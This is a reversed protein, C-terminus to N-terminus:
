AVVRPDTIIYGAAIGVAANAAENVEDPGLDVGARRAVWFIGAAVFAAVIKRIPAYNTLTSREGIDM